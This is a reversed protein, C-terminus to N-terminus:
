EQNMLTMLIPMHRLVCMGYISSLIPWFQVNSSKAVPVGDFNFDLTISIDRDLGKFVNELCSEIGNYWIRGNSLTLIPVAKPTKLLTRSDKPLFSLGAFNLIKLLSSTASKTIHNDMAWNRLKDAVESAKDNSEDFSDSRECHESQLERNGNENAYIREHIQKEHIQKLKQFRRHRRVRDRNNKARQNVTEIQEM